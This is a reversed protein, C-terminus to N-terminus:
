LERVYMIYDSNPPAIDKERLFISIQGRHYSGHNIIHHLIDIISNEFLDGKTTQYKVNRRSIIEIQNDKLFKDTRDYLTLNLDIKNIGPRKDWPLVSEKNQIPNIRDLWIEHANLIHIMLEHARDPYEIGNNLANIYKLNAVKNYKFLQQIQNLM